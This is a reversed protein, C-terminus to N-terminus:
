WSLQIDRSTKIKNLTIMDIKQERQACTRPKKINRQVLARAGEPKTSWAQSESRSAEAEWTSANFIRVVL